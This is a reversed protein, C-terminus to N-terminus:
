NFSWESCVTHSPSNLEFKTWGSGTNYTFNSCDVSFTVPKGNVTAYVLNLHPASIVSRVRTICVYSGDPSNMCRAYASKALVLLNLSASALVVGAAYITKYIFSKM